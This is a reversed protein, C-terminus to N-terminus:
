PGKVHYHRMLLGLLEKLLVLAWLDHFGYDSPVIERPVALQQLIDSLIDLLDEFSFRQRM